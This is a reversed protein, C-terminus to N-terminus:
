QPPKEKQINQWGAWLLLAVFLSLGFFGGLNALRQIGSSAWSGILSLLILLGGAQWIQIKRFTKQM